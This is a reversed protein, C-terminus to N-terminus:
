EFSVGLRRGHRRVVVCNRQPNDPGSSLSFREPVVDPTEVEIMAGLESEDWVLCDLPSALGDYFLSGFRFANKRPELRRNDSM